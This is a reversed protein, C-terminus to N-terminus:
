SYTALPKARRWWRRASKPTIHYDLGGGVGITLASVRGARLSSWLPGTWRAELLRIVKGSLNPDSRWMAGSGSVVALHHGDGATALWASADAPLPRVATGANLALGGALPDDGWVVTYRRAAAAPLEGGGWFWVSNVEPQGRAVRKRNIESAHLLMQIENLWRRWDRGGEGQPLHPHVDQGQVAALHTFRVSPPQPLRLYWRAGTPAILQLGRGEFHANIERCLEIAEERTLWPPDDAMMVRDQGARLHVPDARLWYGTAPAGGSDFLWTLPAVPYEDRPGVAPQGYLRFLAADFGADGTPRADARALLRALGPAAEIGAAAAETSSDFLGPILLTLEPASM